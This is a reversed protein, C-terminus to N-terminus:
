FVTMTMIIALFFALLFSLCIILVCCLLCFILSVKPYGIVDAPSRSFASYPESSEPPGPLGPLLELSPEVTPLVSAPEPGSINSPGPELSPSSTPLASPLPNVSLDNSPVPLPRDTVSSALYGEDDFAHRDFPWVGSVKFGSTINSPTSAKM